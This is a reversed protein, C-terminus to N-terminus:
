GLGLLSMTVPGTLHSVWEATSVLFAVITGFGLLLLVRMLPTDTIM